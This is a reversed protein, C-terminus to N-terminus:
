LGINDGFWERLIDETVGDKYKERIKNLDPKEAPEEYRSNYKRMNQTRSHIRHYETWFQEEGVLERYRILEEDLM